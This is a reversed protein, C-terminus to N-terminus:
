VGMSGEDVRVKKAANGEGEVPEEAARKRGVGLGGNGTSSTCGSEAGGRALVQAGKAGAGAVIANKSGIVNVGANVIVNVAVSGQSVSALAARTM